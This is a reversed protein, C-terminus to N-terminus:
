VNEIEDGIKEVTEVIADVESSLEPAVDKTVEEVVPAVEKFEKYMQELVTKAGILANHNAMSQEIQQSILLLKQEIKELM